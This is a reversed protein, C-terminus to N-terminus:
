RPDVDVWLSSTALIGRLASAVAFADPCKVLIELGARPARRPIPGLVRGGVERSATAAADLAGRAQQGDAAIRVLESAPPYGLEAREALEHRLFYSYDARVVAQIAHHTSEASQVVLRGGAGAWAAMEVLAEYASEAARFDPRRILADADLVGVLSVEPRITPKTGIWTTVYVDRDTPPLEGAQLSEPDARAVTARPFMKQLQDALRESGAGVRRWNSAGCTPCADPPTASFGCRVCRVRRPSLDFSLGSECVPCRLSRRCEACWLVRAYGRRPALLAVREGRALADRIRAHLARSVAADAPPDVVEVIPRAAREDARAPVVSGFEGRQAQAGTEVSPTPSMLVCTAGQLRAREIAVRRADYRPARDEKYSPHHEDSVVILSLEPAPAFVTSRGGGGLAHGSALALWARARDGDAMESDVRVLHPLREGVAELVRSGFKVEPVCVLAQGSTAAVLEAVLAGQDADPTCRFCWGGREGRRVAELLERGGDYRLVLEPESGSATRPIEEARVRVRPPVFHAYARARPVAYRVATWEALADLPPPCLPVGIVIGAVEELPRESARRAIEVVIGRVRRHGLPVRVLMGRALESAMAEPVLYDFSRDLRWAAVLPVVAAILPLLEAPSGASSM